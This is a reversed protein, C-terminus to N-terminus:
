KKEKYDSISFKIQISYFSAVAKRPAPRKEIVAPEWNKPMLSIVRLAEEPLGYKLDNGKVVVPNKINGEMDITVKVIVTGEVKKKLAKKPYVLNDAIFKKLARDGGPYSPPREIVTFIDNNDDASKEQQAQAHLGFGLLM